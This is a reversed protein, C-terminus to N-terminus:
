ERTCDYFSGNTSLRLNSQEVHREAFFLHFEYAVNPELGLESALDDFEVTAEQPLHIGGLDIVLKRDIFVFIDDDGRITFSDGREFQIYSAVEYTFHYNHPRDSTNWEDIPFFGRPTTSFGDPSGAPPNDSDFVLMRPRTTLRLDFPIALNVGEVDRFWQDFSQQSSITSENRRANSVFVPKGDRGLSSAVLGRESSCDVGEDECPEMDPHAEDFDRVVGPLVDTTTCVLPAAAEAADASAEVSAETAGDGPGADLKDPNTSGAESSADESAADLVPWTTANSSSSSAASDDEHSTSVSSSSALSTTQDRSTEGSAADANSGFSADSLTTNSGLDTASSALVSTSSIAESTSPSVTAHQADAQGTYDADLDITNSSADGSTPESVLDGTVIQDPRSSADVCKAGCAAADPTLAQDTTEDRPASQFRPNHCASALAFCVCATSVVTRHQGTSRLSSSKM